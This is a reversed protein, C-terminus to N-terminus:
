LEVMGIGFKPNFFEFIIQCLGLTNKNNYVLDQDQSLGEYEKYDHDHLSYIQPKSHRVYEPSRDREQKYEEYGKSQWRFM